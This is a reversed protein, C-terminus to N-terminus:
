INPLKITTIATMETLSLFVLFSILKTPQHIRSRNKPSNCAIQLVNKVFIIVFCNILKGKEKSLTFPALNLQKQGERDRRLPGVLNQLNGVGVTGVTRGPWYSALM